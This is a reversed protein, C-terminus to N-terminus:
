PKEKESAPNIAGSAAPRPEMADVMERLAEAAPGTLQKNDVLWARVDGVDLRGNRNGLLDLFRTQDANLSGSGLLRDLVAGAELVPKTVSLAFEREAALSESTARLTFRFAGAEAPVGSISGSVPDLSLGDPLKGHLLAWRVSGTGGTAELRDQYLAGMLGASRQAESTIRLPEAFIARVERDGNVLVQCTGTGSCHGSWGLFMWGEAPAASLGLTAGRVPYLRACSETCSLGAETSSVRGSGTLDVRMEFGNRVTVQFASGRASDVRVLVGNLTDRFTEGPIWMAGADNPNENGDPDVVWAPSGTPRAPDVEHVVVAEGPLHADYGTFRRAEVSYFRGNQLPIRALLMDTASTPSASRELSFTRRSAPEAAYKQAEPIWGLLDRHYGITHVGVYESNGNIWKGGGSMVDWRSDYVSGYPGSSHPLGLSHGVEHAYTGQRAWAAMWTMPIVRNVGDRTLYASGGWSFKARTNFQLHVGAYRSFDVEADAAGTCDDRLKYFKLRGLDPEGGADTEFYAAMPDPLDYWGHVASGALNIREGSVERWYHDLGNEAAGAILAEYYAVPNPEVSTSDAFRCLIAVYPKNGSQPPLAASPVRTPSAAERELRLSRASFPADGAGRRSGSLTVRRRDLAQAGGQSRFIEPDLDLPRMRGEEDTIFYEITPPGGGEPDGHIVHFWGSVSQQAQVASTSSLLGLVLAVLGIRIKM